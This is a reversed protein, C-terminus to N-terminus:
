QNRSYVAIDPMVNDAWCDYYVFYKDTDIVLYYNEELYTIDAPYRGENAYCQIVAKKLSQETLIRSQEDNIMSFRSVGFVLIFILAGLIIAPLLVSKWIYRSRKQKFNKL